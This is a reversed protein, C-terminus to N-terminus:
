GGFTGQLAAGIQHLALYVRGLTYLIACCTIIVVTRMVAELMREFLSRGECTTAPPAPAPPAPTPPNQRPLPRGHPERPMRRPADHPLLYQTEAEDRWGDYTM